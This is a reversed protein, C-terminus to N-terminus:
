WCGGGGSTAVVVDDDVENVGEDCRRGGGVGVAVHLQELDEKGCKQLM